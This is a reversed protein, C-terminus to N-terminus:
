TGMRSAFDGTKMRGETRRTNLYVEEGILVPLLEQPKTRANDAHLEDVDEPITRAEVVAGRMVFGSIAWANGVFVLHDIWRSFERGVSRFNEAHPLSLTEAHTCRHASNPNRFIDTFSSGRIKLNVFRRNM